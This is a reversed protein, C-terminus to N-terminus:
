HFAVFRATARQRDQDLRVFYVGAPLSSEITVEHRGPGLGEIKRAACRRGALDYIALTAPARSALSLSVVAGNPGYRIRQVGLEAVGDPVTVEVEGAFVEGGNMPLGLRYSYSAGAAV